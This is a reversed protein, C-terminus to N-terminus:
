QNNISVELLSAIPNITWPILEHIRQNESRIVMNYFLLPRTLLDIWFQSLLQISAKIYKTIKQNFNGDKSILTLISQSKQFLNNSSYYWKKIQVCSLENKKLWSENLALYNSISEKINQFPKFKVIPM